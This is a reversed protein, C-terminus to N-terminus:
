RSGSRLARERARLKEAERRARRANRRAKRQDHVYMSQWYLSDPPCTENRNHRTVTEVLLRTGRESVLVGEGEAFFAAGMALARVKSSPVFAVDADFPAECLSINVPAGPLILVTGRFHVRREGSAPIIPPMSMPLIKARTERAIREWDDAAKDLQVARASLRQVNAPRSQPTQPPSCGGTLVALGLFM